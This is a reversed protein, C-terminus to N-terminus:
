LNEIEEVKCVGFNEVKRSISKVLGQLVKGPGVEIFREVGNELMIEVTDVWKVPATVQDILLSKIRNSDTEVEATVNPVFSCNPTNIEVSDLSDSLPKVASEMLPSHFAGSVVLEKVIKAGSEKCVVMAEKVGDVSGSIVTQVPSNFNAAQVVAEVKDCCEKVVDSKLGVVAAMTGPNNEGADQMMAGRLKVVKLADEFSLSGSAVLAAYEGLSHGATFDPKMGKEKLIEFVIVSLVFIAPQTYKTQKLEEIPGEFSLKKIDFGLIENARDYYQKAIDFKEYLDAGMGVYQSAQGPFIFATKSM